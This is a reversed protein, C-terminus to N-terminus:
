KNNIFSEFDFDNLQRADFKVDEAVAKYLRSLYESKSIEVAGLMETHDNLYQSDLLTFKNLRLIATLVYFCLKSTNSKNSFMSEGFFASGIAVGYLGGVLEDGLWAEVSHAYGVKHFDTYVEIIDDSIWTDERLACQSIVEKFCQNVSFTYTNKKFLQRISRPVKIKEIPLIARFDPCHWYIEGERSEAMPFYGSIYASYLLDPNLLM